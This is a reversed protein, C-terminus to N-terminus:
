PNAVIVYPSEAVIGLAALDKVPDYNLKQFIHPFMGISTGTMLITYGDPVSKSVVENGISGTAGPRNDIVVPQGLLPRLREALMRALVDTGGGPPFPVVLKVPKSPWADQASVGPAVLVTCLAAVAAFLWRRSIPLVRNM